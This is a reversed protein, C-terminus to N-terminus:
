ETWNAAIWISQSDGHWQIRRQGAAGTIPASSEGFQDIITLGTVNGANDRKYKVFLPSHGYSQIAPPTGPVARSKINIFDSDIRWFQLLAGPELGALMQDVIRDFYADDAEGPNRVPDVRLTALNVARAAGPGGRGIYEDAFNRKTPNNQFDELISQWLRYFMRGQDYVTPAGPAGPINAQPANDPFFARVLPELNAGLTNPDGFPNPENDAVASVSAPTGAFARLLIGRTTAATVDVGFNLRGGAIRNDILARVTRRLSLYTCALGEPAPRGTDSFMAESMPLRVSVHPEAVAALDIPVPTTRGPDRWSTGGGLLWKMTGTLWVEVLPAPPAPQGVPPPSQRVYVVGHAPLREQRVVAPATRINVSQRPFFASCNPIVESTRTFRIPLFRPADPWVALMADMLPLAALDAVMHPRMQRYIERAPILGNRPHTPDTRGVPPMPVPDDFTEDPADQPKQARAATITLEVDGAPGVVVTPMVFRVRDDQAADAASELVSGYQGALFAAIAHKSWNAATTRVAGNATPITAKKLGVTLTQFFFEPPLQVPGYWIRNAKVPLQPAFSEIETAVADAVTVLIRGRTKWGDVDAATFSDTAPDPIVGPAAPDALFQMTGPLLPCISAGAPDSQQFRLRMSGAPPDTAPGGPEIDEVQMSNVIVKQLATGTFLFRVSNPM